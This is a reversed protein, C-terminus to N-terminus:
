FAEKMKEFEEDSMDYGTVRKNEDTVLGPGKIWPVEGEDEKQEDGDEPEEDSEPEVAAVQTGEEANSTSSANFSVDELGMLESILQAQALLKSRCERAIDELNERDRVGEQQLAQPLYFARLAHNINLRKDEQSLSVLYKYLRGAQSTESAREKYSITIRKSDSM